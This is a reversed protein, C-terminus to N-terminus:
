CNPFHSKFINWVNFQEESVMSARSSETGVPEDSPVNEEDVTPSDGIPLVNESQKNVTTSHEASGGSKEDSVVAEPHADEVLAASVSDHPFKHLRLIYQVHEGNIESGDEKSSSKRGLFGM